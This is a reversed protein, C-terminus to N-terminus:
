RAGRFVGVLLRAAKAPGDQARMHASTAALRARLGRVAFHRRVDRPSRSIRTPRELSVSAARDVGRGSSDLVGYSAVGLARCAGRVFTTKGTGLEGAVTVVDGPALRVALRAGLAETQEPSASV